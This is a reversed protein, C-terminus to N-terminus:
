QGTLSKYTDLALGQNVFQLTYAKAIDIGAPLVGSAVMDDYFGKMRADTMAGVGLTEADGSMVIGYKKMAEISYAIQADTIDPNDKKILENAARNDGWLYNVWGKISGEVFCKVAEPRKELTDRMVEITTSYTRFGHDALLWIDPMWGAENRIAFPESTVYGQQASDKDAIFPASNFTYPVRNEERFGFKTILLRYWSALSEDSVFVKMNQKAIDEFAAVRGPHTMLVQPEKQFSAAVVVVPINEQIALFPQLMNGGMYGDIRGALLLARGNVQPGGPVITVELGCAAYTGDAVSQYFGGHEAQAVWNTGYSFSELAPSPGAFAAMAAGAMAILRPTM